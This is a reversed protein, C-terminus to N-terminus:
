AHGRRSFWHSWSCSSENKILNQYAFTPILENEWKFFIM